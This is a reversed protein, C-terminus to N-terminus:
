QFWGTLTVSGNTAIMAAGQWYFRGNLTVGGQTARGGGAVFVGKLSPGVPQSLDPLSSLDAESTALDVLLLDPLPLLEPTLVVHIEAGQQGPAITGTGSGTAVVGASRLAQVRVTIAGSRSSDFQLALTQAPPIDITSPLSYKVPSSTKGGNEVTIDIETVGQAQGELSIEVSSRGAGCGILLTALLAPRM